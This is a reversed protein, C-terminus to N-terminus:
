DRSLIGWTEKVFYLPRSKTENFIRGLYVGLIGISILQVSGLFLVSVLLSTWGPITAGHAYRWLAFFIYFVSIFFVVGGMLLPIKLPASSFSTIANLSLSLMKLLTFKSNGKRRADAKYSIYTQSFGMWVVMGRIFRDKEPFQLFADLAKRSLLRFDATASEIRTPSLFNFIKYFLGSSMQKFVGVKEDDRRITNVIDYGDLYKKYLEPIVSPPHQMDGDLSIAVKGKAQELGATLAIQHGFNRSLSIAKVQVMNSNILNRITGFTDDVSGDDVFIVESRFEFNNLVRSLEDYLIKINEKENYVPIVVSIEISHSM